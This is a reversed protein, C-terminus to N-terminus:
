PRGVEFQGVVVSANGGDPVPGLRQMTKLDYLGVKVTYTGPPLDAPLTIRHRDAISEGVLWSSTPYNGDAPWGDSQAVLEGAADYVHAFVTYDIPIPAQAQWFLAVEVESGARQAEAVWLRIQGGFDALPGWTTPAAELREGLRVQGLTVVPTSGPQQILPAWAPFRTYIGVEVMYLGRSIPTQADLRFPMVLLDGERWSSTAPLEIEPAVDLQKGSLDFVHAFANYFFYRDTAWEPKTVRWVTILNTTQGSTTDVAYSVLELGNPLLQGPSVTDMGAPLSPAAVDVVRARDGNPPWRIDIRPQEEGGFAVALDAGDYSDPLFLLRSKEKPLVVVDRVDDFRLRYRSDIMYVLPASEYFFRNSAVITEYGP